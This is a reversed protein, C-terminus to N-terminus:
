NQYKQKSFTLTLQIIKRFSVQYASIYSGSYIVQAYIIFNESYGFGGDQFNRGGGGRSLGQPIHAHAGQLCGSINWYLNLTMFTNPFTTEGLFSTDCMYSHFFITHAHARACLACEFGAESIAETAGIKIRISAILEVYWNVGLFVHLMGM